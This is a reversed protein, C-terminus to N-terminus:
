SLVAHYTASCIKYWFTVSFCCPLYTFFHQSLITPYFLMSPLHVFKPVFHQSLVAHYTASCIKYCFSVIFCCPLYTFLNQLMINRDIFCCPLYSLLNRVLISRYLLMSPLQVFKTAVYQSFVAHYTPSCIKYCFTVIFCCLLYTFLNRSM